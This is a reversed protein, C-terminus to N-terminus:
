REVAPPTALAEGAPFADAAAGAPKALTLTYGATNNAAPDSFVYVFYQGAAPAAYGIEFPALTDQKEMVLSSGADRYLLLQVGTDLATALELAVAQGAALRIEFLDGTGAAGDHSGRIQTGLCIPNAESAINNPEREESLCTVQRRAVWPLYLSHGASPQTPSATQTPTATKTPASATQTAAVATQTALITGDVQRAIHAAPVGAVETFGGGLYVSGDPAARLSQVSGDVDGQAFWSGGQWRAFGAAPVSGAATFWGAAYLSGARDIALSRVSGNLGSGLAAWHNGNWRAINAAPTTGIAAFDGGAYLNGLDDIVLARVASISPMHIGDKANTGSAGVASWGAGNWRAINDAAGNGATAFQGAAYIDGNAAVAVAYVYGGLGSGLKSWSAGNWRAINNASQGGALSFSGGVVLTGDPAAAIAHVSGNVGSGLSSWGHGDWCAINNASLGGASTFRGGAYVYGSREDVQVADVALGSASNLGSGLASWAQGDWRAIHNASQGGALRFDGAAYVAGTADDVDIATVTGAMGDGLPYFAPVLPTAQTGLPSLLIGLLVFLLVPLAASLIPIRRTDM